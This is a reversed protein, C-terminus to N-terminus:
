PNNRTQWNAEPWRPQFKRAEERLSETVGYGHGALRNSDCIRIVTDLNVYVAKFALIEESQQESRM